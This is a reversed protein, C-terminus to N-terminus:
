YWHLLHIGLRRHRTDSVMFLTAIALLCLLSKNEFALVYICHSQLMITHPTDVFRLAYFLCYFTITDLTLLSRCDDDDYRRGRLESKLKPFLHYDFPALDPSYPPHPLIEYGCEAAAAVAVRSTHAQRASALSRQEVKRATKEEVCGKVQSTRTRLLPWNDNRGQYTTM